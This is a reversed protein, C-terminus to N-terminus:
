RAPADTGASATRSADPIFQVRTHFAARGGTEVAMDTTNIFICPM